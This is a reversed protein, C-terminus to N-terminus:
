LKKAPYAKEKREGDEAAGIRIGGIEVTGFTSDAFSVATGRSALVIDRLRVEAAEVRRFDIAAPTSAQGAVRIAELVCLALQVLERSDGDRNALLGKLVSESSGAAAESDLRSIEAEAGPHRRTILERLQKYADKVAETALGSAIFASGYQLAAGIETVLEM